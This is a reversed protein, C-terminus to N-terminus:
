SAATSLGNDGAHTHFDAIDLPRGDLTAETVRGDEIVLHRSKCPNRLGDSHGLALIEARIRGRSIELFGLTGLRTSLHHPLIPSGSNVLVVGERYELREVHTDGGILIDVPEGGLASAVIHSIPRSEPRLEHAMGIRFGEVDLFQRPAMRPDRFLDNNGEAVLVPAFQACWDLVAPATVDGAHLILDVGRLANAVAPGLEDLSRTLSPLHTDSILGIRM